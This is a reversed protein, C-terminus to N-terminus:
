GAPEPHGFHFGQALEFGAARIAEAEAPREVGEALPTIALGKVMAVLSGIMHSRNESALDLDRIMRIDFKLYLPPAEVLEM